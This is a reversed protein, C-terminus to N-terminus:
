HCFVPPRIPPEAPSAAEVVVREPRYKKGGYGLGVLIRRTEQLDLVQQYGSRGHVTGIGSTHRIDVRDDAHKHEAGEQLAYFANHDLEAFSIFHDLMYHPAPAIPWGQALYFGLYCERATRVALFDAATPRRHYAFERFVRIADLLMHVAGRLALHRVAGRPTHIRIETNPFLAVIKPVLTTSDLITKMECCRLTSGVNWTSRVQQLCKDFEGRLGFPVLPRVRQLTGCLMRTCGHMPCYRCDSTTLNDLLVSRVDIHPCAVFPDNRWGQNLYGKECGCWACVVDRAVKTSPQAEGLTPVGSMWDFVMKVDLQLEDDGVPIRVTKLFAIADDLGIEGMLVSLHAASEDAEALAFTHHHILSDQASVVDCLSVIFAVNGRGLLYRRDYTLKLRAPVGPTVRLAGLGIYTAVLQLVLRRLDHYAGKAFMMRKSRRDGDQLLDQEVALLQNHLAPLHAERRQTRWQAASLLSFARKALITLQNTTERHYRQHRAVQGNLAAM